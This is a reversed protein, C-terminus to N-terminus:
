RITIPRIDILLPYGPAQLSIQELTVKEAINIM